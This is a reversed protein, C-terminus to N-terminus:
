ISVVQDEAEHPPYYVRLSDASEGHFITTIPLLGRADISAKLTEMAKGLDRVHFFHLVAGEVYATSDYSGARVAHLEQGLQEEIQPWAASDKRAEFRVIVVELRLGALVAFFEPSLNQAAAFGIPPPWQRPSNHHKGKSSAASNVEVPPSNAKVKQYRRILGPSKREGVLVRWLHIRTVGLQEAHFGIDPFRVKRRNKSRTKSQYQRL